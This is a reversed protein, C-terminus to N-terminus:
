GRIPFRRLTDVCWGISPHTPPIGLDHKVAVRPKFHGVVHQGMRQPRGQRADTHGQADENENHHLAQAVAELVAYFSLERVVRHVANPHFTSSGLHRETTM